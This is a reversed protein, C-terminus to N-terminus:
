KCRALERAATTLSGARYLSRAKWAGFGMDGKWQKPRVLTATRIRPMHEHNAVFDTKHHPTTLM